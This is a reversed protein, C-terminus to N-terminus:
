QNFLWTKTILDLKKASEDYTYTVERIPLEDNTELMIYLRKSISEVSEGYTPSQAFRLQINFNNDKVESSLVRSSATVIRKVDGDSTYNYLKVLDDVNITVDYEKLKDLKDLLEDKSQLKMDYLDVLLKLFEEKHESVNKTGTYTVDGQPLPEDRVTTVESDIKESVVESSVNDNNELNLPTKNEPTKSCGILFLAGILVTLKKIM